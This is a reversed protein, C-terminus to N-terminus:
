DSNSVQIHDSLEPDSNMEEDDEFKCAKEYNDLANRYDGQFELQGAYERAILPISEKSLRNALLLAADWDQLNQRMELAERPKSSSLFMKQALDFDGLYQAMWGAILNREEINKLSELSYVMGADQIKRYVRLAFGIDMDIMAQKGLEKWAEPEDLSECIKWADQYRRLKLIDRLFETHLRSHDNLKETLDHTSLLFTSTKGSETQCVIVGNYLMLPYQNIPIKMRGVFDITQDYISDRAYSYIFMTREDSIIFVGKNPSWSEWFIKRINTPFDEPDKLLISTGNISNYLFVQNQSDIVILRLGSYDPELFKISSTHRHVNVM